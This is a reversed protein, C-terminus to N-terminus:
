GEVAEKIEYFTKRFWPKGIESNLISALEPRAEIIWERALEPHAINVWVRNLGQKAGESLVQKVEAPVVERWLSVNNYILGAFDAATLEATLDLFGEIAARKIFPPM